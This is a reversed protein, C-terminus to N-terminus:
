KELEEISRDIFDNYAIAEILEKVLAKAGERTMLIQYDAVTGKTYRSMDVDGLIIVPEGNSSLVIQDCCWEAIVKM